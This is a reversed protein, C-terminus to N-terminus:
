DTTNHDFDFLVGILYGGVSQTCASVTAPVAQEEGARCILVQSGREFKKRCRFGLGTESIDRATALVSTARRRSTVPYIDLNASWEHRRQSRKGTWTDAENSAHAEALWAHVIEQPQPGQSGVPQM